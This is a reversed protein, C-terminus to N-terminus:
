FQFVAYLLIHSYPECERRAKEAAKECEERTSYETRSIIRGDHHTNQLIYKATAIGDKLGDLQAARIDKCTPFMKYIDKM